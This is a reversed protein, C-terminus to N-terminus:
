RNKDIKELLLFDNHYRDIITERIKSNLYIKGNEASKNVTEFNIKKLNTHRQIEESFSDMSDINFIKLNDNHNSQKIITTQSRFHIESLDDPIDKIVYVIDEFSMKSNFSYTQFHNYRARMNWGNGIIKDKYFSILREIPNRIVTVYLFDDFTYNEYNLEKKTRLIKHILQPDNNLTEYDEADLLEASKALEFKISTNASKPISVYCLKYKFIFLNDVFLGNKQQNFKIINEKNM